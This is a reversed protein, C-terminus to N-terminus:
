ERRGPPIIEPVAGSSEGVPLRIVGNEQNVALPLPQHPETQWPYEYLTRYNYARRYYTGHFPPYRQIDRGNGPYCGYRPSYCTQPMPYFWVHVYDIFSHLWGESAQPDRPPEYPSPRGISQGDVSAEAPYAEPVTRAHDAISPPAGAGVALAITLFVANMFRGEPLFFPDVFSVLLCSSFPNENLLDSIPPSKTLKQRIYSNYSGNPTIFRPHLCIFASLTLAVSYGGGGIGCYREDANM